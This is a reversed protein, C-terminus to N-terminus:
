ALIVFPVNNGEWTKLAAHLATKAFDVVQYAARMLSELRAASVDASQHNAFAKRLGLSFIETLDHGRCLHRRDHQPDSLKKVAELLDSDKLEHRQSKNKVARVMKAEDVDLTHKDVFDSYTLDSFTLNLDERYSHLRLYALPTAAKFLRERIDSSALHLAQEPDCFESVVREFASSQILEIELDHFDSWFLNPSEPTDGELRRLDADIISVVGMVGESELKRLAGLANEWGNAVRISCKTPHMMTRFIKLDDKGEVICMALGPSGARLM